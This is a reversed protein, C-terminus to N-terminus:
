IFGRVTVLGITYVTPPEDFSVNSLMSANGLSTNFSCYFLCRSSTTAGYIFVGCFWYLTFIIFIYTMVRSKSMRKSSGYVSKIMPSEKALM